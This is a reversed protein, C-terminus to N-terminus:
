GGGPLCRFLTRQDSAPYDANALCGTEANSACDQPEVPIGTGTIGAVSVGNVLKPALDATDVAVLRNAVVCDTSGENECISFSGTSITNALDGNVGVVSRGVRINSPVLRRSDMAPFNENSICGTAGTEACAAVGSRLFTGRVIRGGCEVQTGAVVHSPEPCDTGTLQARKCAPLCFLILFLTAAVKM